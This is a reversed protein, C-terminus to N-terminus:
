LRPEVFYATGPLLHSLSVICRWLAVIGCVFAVFCGGFVVIWEVPTVICFYSAKQGHLFGFWGVLERGVSLFHSLSVIWMELAVIGCVFVVFSGSFVVIWGVPTVFCFFWDVFVLCVGLIGDLFVM